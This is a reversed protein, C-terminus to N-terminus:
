IPALKKDKFYLIHGAELFNKDCGLLSTALSVYHDYTQRMRKDTAVLYLNERQVATGPAALDRFYTQIDLVKVKGFSVVSFAHLLESMTAHTFNNEYTLTFTKQICQTKQMAYFIPWYNSMLSIYRDHMGTDTIDRMGPYIRFYKMQNNVPRFGFYLGHVAAYDQNNELFDVCSKMSEKLWFDDDACFCVYKTTVKQVIDHLKTKIDTDPYYFYKM